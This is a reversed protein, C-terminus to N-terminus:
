PEMWLIQGYRLRHPRRVINVLDGILDFANMFDDRVTSLISAHQAPKCIVNMVQDNSLLSLTKGKKDLLYYNWNKQHETVDGTLVDGIRVYTILKHLVSRTAPKGRRVTSYSGSAWAKGYENRVWSKAHKHKPWDLRTREIYDRFDKIVCYRPEPQRM